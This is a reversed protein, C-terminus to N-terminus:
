TMSLNRRRVLREELLNSLLTLSHRDCLLLGPANQLADNAHEHLAHEHLPALYLCLSTQWQKHVAASKKAQSAGVNAVRLFDTSYM